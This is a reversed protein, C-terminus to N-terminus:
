VNLPRQLIITAYSTLFACPRKLLLDTKFVELGRLVPIRRYYSHGFYGRYELVEYGISEFFRIQRKMPGRCHSYYARFKDHMERDREPQVYHLIFDSVVEPLLRNFVFPLTYLTAFCHVSLGGPSLANFMNSYAAKSNDFHEASMRSCILDYPAEPLLVDVGCIDVASMEKMGSKEIEENCNDIATYILGHSEAFGPRIAPNAGAGVECIRTLSHEMVLNEIFSPFKTWGEFNEVSAFKILMLQGEETFYRKDAGNM